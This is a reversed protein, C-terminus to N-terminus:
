AWRTSSRRKGPRQDAQRHRDRRESHRRHRGAGEVRRPDRRHACLGRGDHGVAGDHTAAPRRASRRHAGAPLLHRCQAVAVCRQGLHRHRGAHPRGACRRHLVRAAGRVTRCRCRHHRQGPSRFLRRKRARGPHQVPRRRAPGAHRDQQGPQRGPRGAQRARRRRRADVPDRRHRSGPPARCRRQVRARRQGPGDRHERGHQGTLRQRHGGGVLRRPDGLRHEPPGAGGPRRRRDRLGGARRGPRRQRDRHNDLRRARRHEGVAFGCAGPDAPVTDRRHRWVAHRRDDHEDAGAPLQGCHQGGFRRKCVGVRGAAHRAGAGVRQRGGLDVFQPSNPDLTLNRHTEVPLVTVGDAQLQGVVLNFDTDANRVGTTQVSIRLDNGWAGPNAARVDLADAAAANQLVWEATAHGSAVRVVLAQSGGNAYFQRVAYSLPSNRDLGGHSREFDAFSTIRLAQDVPGKRTYGVFATISTAVGTITRVGSAKEVIYVGPYSVAVM